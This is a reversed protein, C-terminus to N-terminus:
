SASVGACRAAEKWRESEEKYLGASSGDCYGYGGVFECDTNNSCELTGMPHHTDRDASYDGRKDGWVSYVGVVGTDPNRCCYRLLYEGESGRYVLKVREM